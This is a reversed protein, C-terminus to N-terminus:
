RKDKVKHINISGQHDKNIHYWGDECEVQIFEEFIGIELIESTLEFMGLHCKFKKGMPLKIENQIPDNLTRSM